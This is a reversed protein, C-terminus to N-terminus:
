HAPREPGSLAQIEKLQEAVFPTCNVIVLGRVTLDKFLPIAERDIFSVEAFDVLLRDQSDLILECNRQLEALWPGFVQGELYLMTSGDAKTGETIRLM